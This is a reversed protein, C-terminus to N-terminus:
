HAFPRSRQADMCKQMYAQYNAQTVRHMSAETMCDNHAKNANREGGSDYSVTSCATLMLLGILTLACKM